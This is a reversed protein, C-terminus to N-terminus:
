KIEVITAGLGGENYGGTRFSKVHAHNKLFEKIGTRLVGTGKGHIITVSPIGALYVDDLYKDIEMLTEDLTKGRLDIQHPVQAAKIRGIKSYRQTLIEVKEDKMLQLDKINVNIKMIGAQVVLNGDEDPITIVEGKQNLTLIKVTDGLKLKEPPKINTRPVGLGLSKETKEEIARLDQRAKELAKAKDESEKEIAEKLQKILNNIEERQREIIDKATKNAEEIIKNKQALIKELRRDAEEKTREIENRLRQAAYREEDAKKRSEELSSIVDEFKIKDKTIFEKAKEIISDDLGLKKSIEFANSKGPVGISLKYTPQLTEIDFEVSANCVGPTTLAYIKLESYHTTAVTRVDKEHLLELIAMALAAGETPDTGAGLEDLLVLSNESISQLISVINKMHSSFTSLSQEISQEDGIDAYIHDFVSIESYDGAPIHLGSQAMLSLLGTTKLTVTKGGTNPGTIVLTNFDDGVRIDIPVVVSPDILPHRAKKINIRGETNIVPESCRYALSFKAKAFIFDLTALIEVNAKIDDHNEAIVASLQAIIREIEEKEKLKLQRLDNNMEVIAMPEIFLTAGSSSQDHVIGPVNSRYEQKIPLVYRDGRMTVIQEQLYKQYASSTVMNNLKDKIQGHKDRIKRRISALEPSANDSIEEESVIANNISNEIQKYETLMNVLDEIIPYEKEGRDEKMFHKIKRASALTYSVQLLEEMTLPSGIEAKKLATRIDYIGELPFTGRKLIIDAAETTEQLWEKIEYVNNSPKLAMAIERGLNSVTEDAVIKIIKDYELVRLAKDNM